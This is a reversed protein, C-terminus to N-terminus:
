AKLNIIYILVIANEYEYQQANVFSIKEFDNLSILYRYPMQYKNSIFKM